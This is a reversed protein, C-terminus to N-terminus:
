PMKKPDIDKKIHKSKQPNNPSTSSRSYKRKLNKNKRQNKRTIDKTQLNTSRLSSKDILSSNDPQDKESTPNQVAGLARHM